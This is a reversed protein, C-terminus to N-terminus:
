KLWSTGSNLWGFCLFALGVTDVAVMGWYAYKSESKEFQANGWGARRTTFDRYLVRAQGATLLTFFFLFILDFIM